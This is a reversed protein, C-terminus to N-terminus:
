DRSAAERRRAGGRAAAGTQPECAARRRARAVTLVVLELLAVAGAGVGVLAGVAISGAFAVVLPLAACCGIALALAGVGALGTWAGPGNNAEPNSVPDPGGAPLSTSPTTRWCRDRWRSSRASERIPSGTSSWGTSAAPPSSAAGAFAPLTTPSAQSPSGSASSWSGVSLEGEAELAELIRVRTPDALVRFYKGILEPETPAESFEFPADALTEQM